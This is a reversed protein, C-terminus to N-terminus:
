PENKALEFRRAIETMRKRNVGLDSYGVRSASRFDIRGQELDVRFEVDDVFGLIASRFEVHLYDESRAVVTTRPFEGCVKELLDLGKDAAGSWPLPEMAHEADAATSSVCNPSNPCEALPAGVTRGKSAVTSPVPSRGNSSRIVFIGIAGIVLVFLLLVTPLRRLFTSRVNPAAM